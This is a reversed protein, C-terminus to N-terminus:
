RYYLTLHVMRKWFEAELYLDVVYINYEFTCCYLFLFFDSTPVCVACYSTLSINDALENKPICHVAFCSYDVWM